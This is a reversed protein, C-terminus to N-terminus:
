GDTGPDVSRLADGSRHQLNLCCIWGSGPHALLCGLLGQGAVREAANNICQLRCSIAVGYLEHRACM